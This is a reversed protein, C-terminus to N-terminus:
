HKFKSIIQHISKREVVFTLFCFHRNFKLVLILKIPFRLLTLFVFFFIYFVVQLINNRLLVQRYKVEGYFQMQLYIRTQGSNIRIYFYCIYIVKYSFSYCIVVVYQYRIIVHCVIHKILNSCFSVYLILKRLM